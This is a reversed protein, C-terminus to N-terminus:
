LKTINEFASPRSNRLRPSLEGNNSSNDKGEDDGDGGGAAGTHNSASLSTRGAKEIYHELANSINRARTELNPTRKKYYESQRIQHEISSQRGGSNGNVLSTRNMYNSKRGHISRSWPMVGGGILSHKENQIYMDVDNIDIDLDINDIDELNNEIDDEDIIIDKKRKYHNNEIEKKTQNTLINLIYKFNPRDKPNHSLCKIILDNITPPAFTIPNDITVPRWGDETMPRIIRMPQKPIKKKKFNLLWKEGIFSLIPIDICVDILIMGFSYVDITEDYYEGKAVEPAAYLPTGVATMHVNENGKTRSTGFDAIKASIFSSILINEPKLDRHLICENITNNRDDYYKRSHLYEMGKVIDIILRLIPDTWKLHINKKSSLLLDRLSGNDVWELVMCILERSWCAGVFNVINPHRLTATLLIENKFVKVNVETVDLMTKIAVTEGMCTGKFVEGFAGAGVRKVMIVDSPKLLLQSLVIETLSQSNESSITRRRQQSDINNINSNQNNAPKSSNITIVNVAEQLMSDVMQFHKSSIAANNFSTDSEEQDKESTEDITNTAFPIVKLHDNNDNNRDVRLMSKGGGGGEGEQYGSRQESNMIESVINFEQTTFAKRWSLEMQKKNYYTFALCIVLGFTVLNLVCLFIGIGLDGLGFSMLASSDIALSTYFTILITFQAVYAIV